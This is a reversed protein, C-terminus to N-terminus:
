VLRSRCLCQSRCWNGVPWNLRQRPVTLVNRWIILTDILTSTPRPWHSGVMHSMAVNDNIQFVPVIHVFREVMAALFFENEHIKTTNNSVCFLLLFPVVSMHLLLLHFYSMVRHLSVTCYRRTANLQRMHCLTHLEAFPFHILPREDHCYMYILVWVFVVPNECFTPSSIEKRNM